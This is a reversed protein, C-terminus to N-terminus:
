RAFLGVGALPAIIGARATGWRAWTRVALLGIVATHGTGLATQGTHVFSPFAIPIALAFVWGAEMGKVRVINAAEIKIAM